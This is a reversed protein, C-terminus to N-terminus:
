DSVCNRGNDKARYLAEDASAVLAQPTSNATNLSGVGMSISVPLAQGDFVFETEDILARLSEGVALAKAATTEPLVVVFEDGAYRAFLEDRRVREKVIRAMKRLVHDGSLHGWNDNIRKFHDVDFILLALPRDHRLARSIERETFEEFYRRNHIQTLGDFIAMRYIEEHYAAEVNATSLYKFITSGVKVLDGDRLQTRSIQRGGVWTGNTSSLDELIWGDPTYVLQCHKRSVSEDDAVIDADLDRGIITAKRYPDLDVKHGIRAGYITVLIEGRKNSSLGPLDKVVITDTGRM